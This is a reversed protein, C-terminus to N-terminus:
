RYCESEQKRWANRSEVMPRGDEDDAFWPKRKM